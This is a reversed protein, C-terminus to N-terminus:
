AEPYEGQGSIFENALDLLEAEVVADISKNQIAFRLRYADADTVREATTENDYKGDAECDVIKIHLIQERRIKDFQIETDAASKVVFIKEGNIAVFGETGALQYISCDDPINRKM